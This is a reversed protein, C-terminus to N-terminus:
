ADEVMHLVPIGSKWIALQKRNTTIFIYQVKYLMIQM